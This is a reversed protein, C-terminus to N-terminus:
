ADDIWKKFLPAMEQSIIIQEDINSITFAVKLKVQEYSSYGKVYNINVIYQKNARFFVNQDLEAEIKSLTTNTEYTRGLKDIVYVTQLRKCFLAVDALPLSIRERGKGVVIRLRKREKSIPLKDKGKLFYNRLSQFKEVAKALKLKTVPIKLFYIGNFQFVSSKHDDDRGIYIVPATSGTKDIVEFFLGDTLEIASIIL